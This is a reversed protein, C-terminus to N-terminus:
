ISELEWYNAELVAMPLRRGKFSKLTARRFVTFFPYERGEQLNVKKYLSYVLRPDSLKPARSAQLNLARFALIQKSEWPKIKSEHNEPGKKLDPGTFCDHM